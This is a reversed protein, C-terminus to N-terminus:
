NVKMIRLIRNNMSTGYYIYGNYGTIASYGNNTILENYCQNCDDETYFKLMCWDSSSQRSVANAIQNYDYPYIYMGNQYYYDYTYASCYPEGQGDDIIHTEMLEQTTICFYDYVLSESGDPNISDDWTVDIYYYEGDINACNWEHLEGSELNAGHILFCDIGREKMLWQFARSYGSCVALHNIFCGYASGSASEYTPEGSELLAHDYTTYNVIADHFYLAAQYDTMEKTQAVLWDCVNQVESRKERVDDLSMWIGPTYEIITHNGPTTIYIRSAGTLWFYEPYDMNVAIFARDIMTKEINNFTISESLANLDEVLWAYIRQEDSTLQKGYYGYTVDPVQDKLTYGVSTYPDEAEESDEAIQDAQPAKSVVATPATSQVAPPTPSENTKLTTRYLNILILVALIWFWARKYIPKKRRQVNRTEPLVNEQSSIEIKSGCQPCYKSANAIQSGCNPCFMEDGENYFPGSYRNGPNTM